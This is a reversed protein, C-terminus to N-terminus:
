GWSREKEKGEGSMRAEKIKNEKRKKIPRARRDRLRQVQQKRQRSYRVWLYGGSL